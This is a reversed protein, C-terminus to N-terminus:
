DFNKTQRCTSTYFGVHINIKHCKLTYVVFKIFCYFNDHFKSQEGRLSKLVPPILKRGQRAKVLYKVVLPKIERPIAWLANFYGRKCKEISLLIWGLYM